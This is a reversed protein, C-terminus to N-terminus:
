LRPGLRRNWGLARRVYFVPLGVLIALLIAGRDGARRWRRTKAAARLRQLRYPRRTM